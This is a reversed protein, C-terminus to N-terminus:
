NHSILDFIVDQVAPLIDENAFITLNDLALCVRGPSGSELDKRLTNIMMLRLEHEPPMLEACYLYGEALILMTNKLRSSLEFNGIRKDEVTRGVEALNLAHTLAFDFTGPPLFGPSAAGYIYLLVILCEKCM